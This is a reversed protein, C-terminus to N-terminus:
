ALKPQIGLKNDRWLLLIEMIKSKRRSGMLSYLTMMWSLAKPGSIYTAHWTKGGKRKNAWKSQTSISSNWLKAVREIVDRDIMTVQLRVTYYLDTHNKRKYIKHHINFCGEGEIIGALWYLDKLSVM